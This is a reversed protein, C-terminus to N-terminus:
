HERAGRQFRRASDIEIARFQCPEAGALDPARSSSAPSRTSPSPSDTTVWTSFAAFGESQMVTTERGPHCRNGSGTNKVGAPSVIPAGSPTRMSSAALTFGIPRTAQEPVISPQCAAMPAATVASFQACYDRLAAADNAPGSTSRVLDSVQPSLRLPPMDSPLVVPCCIVTEAQDEGICDSPPKRGRRLFRRSCSSRCRLSPLRRVVSVTSLCVAEPRSNM